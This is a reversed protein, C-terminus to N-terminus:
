NRESMASFKPESGHMLICEPLMVSFAIHVEMMPTSMTPKPESAFCGMILDLELTLLNGTFTKIALLNWFPLPFFGAQFLLSLKRRSNYTDEDYLTTM